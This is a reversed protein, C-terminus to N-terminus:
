TLHRDDNWLAIAPEELRHHDFGLICVAATGLLLSRGFITPQSVWRASLVRLVHGHAFVLVNGTLAKLRHVVGDVRETIASVSEGGPCGDHFLEWKPHQERIQASTLGEFDGYNWEMLGPDVVGAFGALECTRRARILPSMLVHAFTLGQFRGGVKVADAEGKATLPLDTRGTHRGAKSWETEGHRALYITPVGSM